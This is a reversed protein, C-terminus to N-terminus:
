IMSGIPYRGQDKTRLYYTKGNSYVSGTRMTGDTNLYYWYAGSKLWGTVMTGSNKFYFWQYKGRYYIKQWGTVMTGSNNFYFWQYQGGYYIKQWGSLMKGSGNFYFWESKGKYNIKQWGSLMVGNDDFYYWDYVGKWDIKQWGTMMKGSGNFYYWNTAGNITLKQWGSLMVGNKDFYYWNESGNFNLFQLGKVPTGDKLYYWKNSESKWGDFANLENTATSTVDGSDPFDVVINLNAQTTYINKLGLTQITQAGISTNIPNTGTIISLEPNIHKLFNVTGNCGHHGFKFVDVDKLLDKTRENNILYDEDGESNGIDGALFAKKDNKTVVIGLSNSNESHIKINAKQAETNYTQNNVIDITFDEFAFNLDDITSDDDLYVIDVSNRNASAIMEDYVEQNDWTYETLYTFIKEEVGNENIYTPKYEKTYLTKTPIEDFILDFNGIHDSHAHTAIAFDLETVGLSNLYDLIEKEFGPLDDINNIADVNRTSLTSARTGTDEASDVLGYRGNSEIIMIDSQGTSLFHIKDDTKTDAAATPVPLGSLLSALVLTCLINKKKM